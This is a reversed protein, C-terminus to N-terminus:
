NGGCKCGHRMLETMSCRCAHKTTLQAAATNVPKYVEGTSGPTSSPYSLALQHEEYYPGVLLQGQFILLYTRSLPYFTHVSANMMFNADGRDVVTVSTGVDYKALLRNPSPSSNSVLNLRYEPITSLTNGMHTELDYCPGTPLAHLALIVCIGMTPNSAVTVKDGIAFKFGTPASGSAVVLTLGSDAAWIYAGTDLSIRLLRPDNQDIDVITGTRQISNVQVIDGIKYQHQQSM